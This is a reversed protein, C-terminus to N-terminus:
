KAPVWVSDASDLEVGAVETSLNIAQLGSKKGPIADFELLYQNDLTNRLQDLYPKFSVPNQTGMYYSEGGSEDSVKSIGLQGNYIEWYNSGLRGIGRFFITHVIIGMRQAVSSASDADVPISNRPRPGGRARDVGDTVMLVERRNPHEPWRKMLDILSLYPSGYAGTSGLPLRLSKAALAHDTTFNQAIQVTANRMYGVGVAANPPLNNIFDRIDDFQGGLTADSSDDLLLFLDLSTDKAPTWSVVNLRNKKQKVIVDDRTVDPMRRNEGLLRVAVTMRVTATAVPSTAANQAQTTAVERLAGVFMLVLSLVLLHRRM